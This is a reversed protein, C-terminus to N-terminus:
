YRRTRMRTTQCRWTLLVVLLGKISDLLLLELRGFRLYIALGIALWWLGLLHCLLAYRPWRNWLQVFVLGAVLAVLLLLWGLAFSLLETAPGYAVGFKSLTFAPAFFVGGALALETAIALFLVLLLLPRAM